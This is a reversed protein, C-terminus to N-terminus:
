KRSKTGLKPFGKGTWSTATMTKLRGNRKIEKLDERDLVGGTPNSPSNIIILKTKETILPEILDATM